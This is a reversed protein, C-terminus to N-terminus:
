ATKGAANTPNNSMKRTIAMELLERLLHTTGLNSSGKLFKRKTKLEKPKDLMEEKDMGPLM